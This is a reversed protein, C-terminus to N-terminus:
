TGVFFNFSTFNYVQGQSQQSEPLNPNEVSCGDKQFRGPTFNYKVSKSLCFVFYRTAFKSMRNLEDLTDVTTM